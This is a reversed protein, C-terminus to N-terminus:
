DERCPNGMGPLRELLSSPMLGIAQRDISRVLAGEGPRLLIRGCAGAARRRNFSCGIDLELARRRANGTRRTRIDHRTMPMAPMKCGIEANPPSRMSQICGLSM